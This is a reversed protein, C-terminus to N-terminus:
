GGGHWWHRIQLLLRGMWGASALPRHPKDGKQQDLMADACRLLMEGETSGKM